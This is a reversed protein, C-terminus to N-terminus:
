PIVFIATLVGNTADGGTGKTVSIEVYQGTAIAVSGSVTILSTTNVTATGVSSGNVILQVTGNSSSDTTGTKFTFGTCTANPHEWLFGGPMLLNSNIYTSVTAVEYPGPMPTTVTVTQAKSGGDKILKGTAGDFVALNGSTAATPGVVKASLDTTLNTVEAETHTHSAAARGTDTPHIHGADAPKGVSGAARTGDMQIDAAVTDIDTYAANGLSLLTKVEALTKKAWVGAGSAVLFDSVATALSHKVYQPHDDNSLGSLDGHAIQGGDGGSHDHTDGNTVGKAIPAYTTDHNHESTAADIDAPTLTDAGRKAHRAAHLAAAYDTNETAALVNTGNGKLIGALTTATSDSVENPGAAGTDGKDGKLSSVTILNIWETDGVLRWQIYTDTKQLEVSRGNIGATGAPGTLAGLPILNIWAIDGVYRWQIYTTTVQLEIERGDVGPSGAPGPTLSINAIQDALATDNDQLTNIDEAALARCVLAGTDFAKAAGERGRFVGTLVGNVPDTPFFFFEPTTDADDQRISLLNPATPFDKTITLSIETDTASIPKVLVADPSQPQVPYTPKLTM